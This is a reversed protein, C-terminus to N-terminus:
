APARPRLGAAYGREGKASQLLGRGEARGHGRVALEDRLRDREVHRERIGGSGRGVIAEGGVLDAGVGLSIYVQLTLNDRKSRM